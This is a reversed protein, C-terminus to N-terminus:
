GAGASTMAAMCPTFWCISSERCLSLRQRKRRSRIESLYIKEKFFNNQHFYRYCGHMHTIKLYSMSLSYPSVCIVFFTEIGFYM